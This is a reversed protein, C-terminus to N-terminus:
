NGLMSRKLAARDLAQDEVSKQAFTPQLEQWRKQFAQLKAIAEASAPPPPSGQSNLESIEDGGPGVSRAGDSGPLTKHVVKTPSPYGRRQAASVIAPDKTPYSQPGTIMDNYPPPGGGAKRPASGPAAIIRARMKSLTPQGEAGRKQDCGAVIAMCITASLTSLRGVRAFSAWARAGM